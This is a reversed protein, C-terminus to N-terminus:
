HIAQLVRSHEPLFSKLYAMQCALVNRNELILGESWNPVYPVYLLQMGCESLLKDDKMHNCSECATVVNTWKDVGGRSQPIIHDRTLRLAHFTKGCYACINLDRRFLEANTLSPARGALKSSRAAVGRIAIIPATVISSQLGTIRNIGGRFLTEDDENGLQWIVNGKAHQIIAEQKSLWENPQGQSDLALIKM